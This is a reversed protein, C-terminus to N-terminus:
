LKGLEDLFKIVRMSEAVGTTGSMAVVVSLTELIEEMSAGEELALMTQALICNTTGSKLAVALSMLRKVKNSLVGDKYVVDLVAGLPGMLDPLTQIFKDLLKGREENYKVQNEM